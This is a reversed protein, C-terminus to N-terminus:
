LVAVAMHKCRRRLLAHVKRKFAVGLQADASHTGNSHLVLSLTLV